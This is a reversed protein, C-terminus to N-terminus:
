KHIYYRIRGRLTVGNCIINDSSCTLTVTKNNNSMTMTFNNKRNYIKIQGNELKATEVSYITTTPINNTYLFEACVAIVVEYDTNILSLNENAYLYVGHVSAGPSNVKLTFSITNSSITTNVGVYNMSITDRITNMTTILPPYNSILDPKGDQELVDEVVINQGLFAEKFDLKAQELREIEGILSM